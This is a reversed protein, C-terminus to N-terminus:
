VSMSAMDPSKDRDSFVRNLSRCASASAVNPIDEGNDHDTNINNDMTVAECARM